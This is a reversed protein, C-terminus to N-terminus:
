EIIKDSKNRYYTFLDEGWQLAASDFSFLHQKQDYTGNSFPLTLSLFRDTVVHTFEIKESCVYLSTDEFTFFERLNAGFEKQMREYVLPTVLISVKIGKNLLLRFSSIFLPNFISCIGSIKKSKALNELWDKHPEYLYTRDPPESFTCNPLEGIRELLSVPICEIAHNSWYDYRTGLVNLLNILPKMRGTIALGLPSLRYDTKTKLILSNDRLKKLHPLVEVSGSNLTENIEVITKPGDTLLLLIETRKKSLFVLELTSIPM